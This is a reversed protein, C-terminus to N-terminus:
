RTPGRILAPPRIPSAARPARSSSVSSGISAPRKGGFEVPQVALPLRDLLEGDLIGLSLREQWRHRDAAATITVAEASHCGPTTPKIAARRFSRKRRGAKAKVSLGSPVAVPDPRETGPTSRPRATRAATSCPNAM